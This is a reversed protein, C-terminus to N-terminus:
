PVIPRANVPATKSRPLRCAVASTDIDADLAELLPAQRPRAPPAGSEPQEGDHVPAFVGTSSRRNTHESSDLAGQQKLEYYRSRKMGMAIWPKTRSANNALLWESRPVAGDQRRRKESRATSNTARRQERGAKDVDISGITTLGLATRIADTVGLKHALADAKWKLPKAAVRKLLAALEEEGCWPSWRAAWARIAVAPCAKGLHWIHCAAVHLDIRGADDDPLEPVGWCYVFVIELDCFREFQCSGALGFPLFLRFINTKNCRAYFLV